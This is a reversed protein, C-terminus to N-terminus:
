GKREMEQVIFDDYATWKEEGHKLLEIHEFREVVVHGPSTPEAAHRVVLLLKRRQEMLGRGSPM